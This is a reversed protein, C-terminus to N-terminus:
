AIPEVAGAQVGATAPVLGIRALVTRFRPDLPLEHYMPRMMWVYLAGVPLWLVVAVWVAGTPVMLGIALAVAFLWGGRALWLRAADVIARRPIGAQEAVLHLGVPLTTVVAALIAAVAIGEFGLVRALLLAGGVQLAGNGLTAIGVELRRGLVSAVTALAHTMSAAVLGGALLLNLKHGGYLSESVWWSVFSPNIALLLTVSAGAIILHLRVMARTIERLREPRAEGYLQALPVLGSDPVIWGMQMLTTSLRASCSYLPVLEPFGTAALVLGNSMSMLKWGFLGLWGGISTGMLRRAAGFSPRPWGRVLSPFRLALRGVSVVGALVAPIVAGIAIAYLGWGQALLGLTLAANLLLRGIAAVGNFTVDQMGILAAGCVNLPIALVTGAVLLLLPGSLVRRDADTVHLVASLSFWGGFSLAAAAVSMVIAIALANSLMSRIAAEDGRGDAEAILWPLVGFVGLDLLAVYSLLDSCALWLGYARIDVQRLVIPVLVIAFAIAVAYQGYAFASTLMARRTRSTTAPM